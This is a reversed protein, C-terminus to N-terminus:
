AMSKWNIRVNSRLEFFAFRQATNNKVQQTFIFSVVTTKLSFISFDTLRIREKLQVTTQPKSDRNSGFLFAM